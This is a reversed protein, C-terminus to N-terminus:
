GLWNGEGDRVITLPGLKKWLMYYTTSRGYRDLYRVDAGEM